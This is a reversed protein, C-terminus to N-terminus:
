QAAKEKKVFKDASMKPNIKYKSITWEENPAGGQSKTVVHPLNFGGVSKYESFAWSADVEPAKEFADAAEKMRREREEPTMQAGQGPQGGQAGPQRQGGGQGAQGTQGAQGAQGGQGGQGPQGGQAGPQRQGGGQGGQGGQGPGGPGGRGGRGLQKTKFKLGVLQHTQQNLYLVVNLGNANKANIADLKSGEPGPAEGAYSYQLQASAPATMLFGLMVLLMDRRQSMQFYKAMPSDATMGGPGGAPGAPGGPGGFGGGGFGGPGRGGGGDGGGFGGGGGMGVAAEFGTWYTDGNLTAINTGRQSNTTRMIKDPLLLELQLESEVQQNGFSNRSTGSASLSQLTKWKSEDGIAARAQKMIQEAKADQGFAAGAIAIVLAVAFLLKRM